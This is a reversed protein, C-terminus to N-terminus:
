GSGHRVTFAGLQKVVFGNELIVEPADFIVDAAPEVSVNQASLWQDALCVDNGFFVEGVLPVTVGSCAVSAPVTWNTSAMLHPAAMGTNLWAELLNVGEAGLGIVSGDNALNLFQILEWSTPQYLLSVTATAAGAPPELVVDDWHRYSGGAGGGYQTPPVPLVNRKRAEAYDMGFPPIRNDRVVTNNLVFHFTERVRGSPLAKLEGLTLLPAGTYRDYRLVLSDPYGLGSLQNAWDSTIGYHTEYIRAHPDELDLISEVQVPTGGAPNPVMVPAGTEDSLPGYAGDERLVGGGSGFWRVNLWMRRGEPYGTILKHGSRNVVSLLNGTVQLAAAQELQQKALLSGADLASDEAASLGGGLRLQGNTDQYQIADAIWYNGGMLTHSPLDTRYPPQGRSAGYGQTAQMHCTQCSFYRATGDAYNGGTGALLAADRAAQIAGGQLDTPLSGYDSVLTQSLLGAKYESFTREIIGYQFPFNNFAAKGNVPGGLTGDRVVPDATPQAGANHALNGTVPNSVDHCTGCFDVSRHFASAETGHQPSFAGSYPGLKSTGDWVSMMASGYYGRVAAPDSGPDGLDNALFPANQVGILLPDSDDPDTFRHCADCTVGDADADLLNSGNTPTSRGSLWAPPMHCRLCLDASGDFDQEAVAVAAWFLPDRGAHGMVSGRWQDSLHVTTSGDGHCSGCGDPGQFLTLLENPQTGPQQADTPVVLAAQALSFGLLSFAAVLGCRIKM